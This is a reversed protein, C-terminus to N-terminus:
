IKGEGRSYSLSLEFEARIQGQFRAKLLFSKTDQKVVHTDSTTVFSRSMCLYHIADIVSTKGAGNPGIIVNIHPALTVKTHHHNRFHFLEVEQIRM